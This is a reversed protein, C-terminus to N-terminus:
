KEAFNSIKDIRAFNKIPFFYNYFNLNNLGIFFHLIIQLPSFLPPIEALLHNKSVKHNAFVEILRTFYFM